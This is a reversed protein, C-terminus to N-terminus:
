IKFSKEQQLSFPHKTKYIELDAAKAVGIRALHTGKTATDDAFATLIGSERCDSIIEPITIVSSCLWGTPFELFHAILPIVCTTIDRTTIPAGPNIKSGSM